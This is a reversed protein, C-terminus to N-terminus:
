PSTNLNLLLNKAKNKLPVFYEYAIIKELLPLAQEKEGSQFHILALNYLAYPNNTNKNLANKLSNVAEDLKRQRMLNIGQLTYILGDKKGMEISKKLVETVEGSKGLLHLVTGLCKYYLARKSNIRIAKKFCDASESLEGTRIKTEGMLYWGYDDSPHNILYKKYHDASLRYEGSLYYGMGKAFQEERTDATPIDMTESSSIQISRRSYEAMQTGPALEIVKNFFSNSAEVDNLMNYIRALGLYARAEKPSLKITDNFMEIAENFSKQISYIAGLNLYSLVNTRNLRKSELVHKEANDFKRMKMWNIGLLLHARYHIPCIIIVKELFQISENYKKQEFYVFGLKFLYDVDESNIAIAEEFKIVAEDYMKKKAFGIAEQHLAEAAPEVHDPYWQIILNEKDILGEMIGIDTFYKKLVIEKLAIPESIEGPVEMFYSDNMIDTLLISITIIKSKQSKQLM